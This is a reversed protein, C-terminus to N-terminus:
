CIGAYILCYEYFLQHNDQVYQSALCWNFYQIDNYVIWELTHYKYKGFLCIKNEVKKRKDLISYGTYTQSTSPQRYNQINISQMNYTKYILKIPKTYKNM